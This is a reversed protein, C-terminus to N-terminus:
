GVPFNGLFHYRGDGFVHFKFCCDVIVRRGALFSVGAHTLPVADIRFAVRVSDPVSCFPLRAKMRYTLRFPLNAM